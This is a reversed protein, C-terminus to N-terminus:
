LFLYNLLCQLMNPKNRKPEWSPANCPLKGKYKGRGRGFRKEVLAEIEDIEDDYSDSQSKVYKGKKKSLILQSKFSSEITAPTYSDFNSM